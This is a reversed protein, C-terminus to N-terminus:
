KGVFLCFHQHTTYVRAVAVHELMCYLALRNSNRASYTSWVSVISILVPFVGESCTDTSNPVNSSATRALENVPSEMAIPGSLNGNM